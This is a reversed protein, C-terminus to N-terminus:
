RRRIRCPLISMRRASSTLRSRLLCSSPSMAIVPSSTCFSVSMRAWRWGSPASHPAPPTRSSLSLWAAPVGARPTPPAVHRQVAGLAAEEVALSGVVALTAPRQEVAAGLAGRRSGFRVRRGVADVIRALEYRDLDPLDGRMARREHDPGSAPADALAERDVALAQADAPARVGRDEEVVHRDGAVVRQQDAAALVPVQVVHAREVAGVHIAGADLRLPELLAVLQLDALVLQREVRASPMAPSVARRRAARPRAPRTRVRMRM